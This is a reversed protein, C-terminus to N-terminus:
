QPTPIVAEAASLTMSPEVFAAGVALAAFTFVTALVKTTTSSSSFMESLGNGSAANDAASM